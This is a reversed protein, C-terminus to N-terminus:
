HVKISTQLLFAQLHFYAMLVVTFDCAIIVCQELDKLIDLIAINEFLKKAEWQNGFSGL